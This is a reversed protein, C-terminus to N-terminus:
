NREVNWFVVMARRAILPHQCAFGEIWVKEGEIVSQYPIMPEFLKIDGGFLNELYKIILIQREEVNAANSLDIDFMFQAEVLATHVVIKTM